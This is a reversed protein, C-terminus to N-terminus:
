SRQVTTIYMVEDQLKERIANYEGSNILEQLTSESKDIIAHGCVCDWTTIIESRRTGSRYRELINM